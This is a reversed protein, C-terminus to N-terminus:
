GGFNSGVRESGPLVPHAEDNVIATERAAAEENEAAIAARGLELAHVYLRALVKLLRANEEPSAPPWLPIAGLPPLEPSAPPRTM